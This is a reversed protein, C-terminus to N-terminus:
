EQCTVVWFLSAHESVNTLEILVSKKICLIWFYAYKPPIFKQQQYFVYM